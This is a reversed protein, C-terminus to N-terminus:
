RTLARREAKREAQRDAMRGEKKRENGTGPRVRVHIGLRLHIYQFAQEAIGCEVADKGERGRPGEGERM